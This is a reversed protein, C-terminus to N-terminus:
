FELFRIAIFARTDFNTPFQKNKIPKTQNSLNNHQFRTWFTIFFYFGKSHTVVMSFNELNKALIM